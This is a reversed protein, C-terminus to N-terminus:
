GQQYLNPRRGEVMARHLRWARPSRHWPVHRTPINTQLRQNKAQAAAVISQCDRWDFFPLTLVGCLWCGSAPRTVTRAPSRTPQPTHAATQREPTNSRSPVRITTRSSVANPQIAHPCQMITHGFPLTVTLPRPTSATRHKAIRGRHQHKVTPQEVEPVWPRAGSSRM